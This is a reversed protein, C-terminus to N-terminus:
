TLTQVIFQESFLSLAIRQLVKMRSSALFANKRSFFIEVSSNHM